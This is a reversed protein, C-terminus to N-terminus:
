AALKSSTMGLRSPIGNALLEPIEPDDDGDLAAYELAVLNAEDLEEKALIHQDVDTDRTDSVSAGM